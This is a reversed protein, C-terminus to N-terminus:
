MLLNVNMGVAERYTLPSLPLFNTNTETIVQPFLGQIKM